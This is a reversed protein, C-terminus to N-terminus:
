VAPYADYEIGVDATPGKRPELETANLFKRWRDITVEYKDIFYGEVYVRRKPFWEQAAIEHYHGYGMMDAIKEADAVDAGMTFYGAPVYVMIAGDDPHVIQTGAAPEAEVSQPPEARLACGMNCVLFMLFTLGIRQM